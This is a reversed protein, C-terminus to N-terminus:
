NLEAAHHIGHTTGDLHLVARDLAVGPKRRLTADLEADADMKAVDDLLAIAIKHTITDIDGRPQLTDGLRSGDTEGFVGIALHLRPEIERDAIEAFDVELVDGFRYPDKM